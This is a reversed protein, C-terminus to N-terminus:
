MVPLKKSQYYLFLIGSGGQLYLILSNDINDGRILIGQAIGGIPIKELFVISNPKIKGNSDKIKTTYVLFVRWFPIM